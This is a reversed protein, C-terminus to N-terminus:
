DEAHYQHEQHTQGVRDWAILFASLLCAFYLYALKSFPPLSTDQYSILDDLFSLFM